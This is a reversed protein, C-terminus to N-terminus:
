VILSLRQQSLSHRNKDYWLFDYEALMSNEDRMPNGCEICISPAMYQLWVFMQETGGERPQFVLPQAEKAQSRM